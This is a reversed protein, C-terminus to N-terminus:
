GQQYSGLHLWSEGESVPDGAPFDTMTGLWFRGHPDVAGDNSRIRDGYAEGADEFKTVYEYKGTKRDAVAIGQKVGILIKEEPDVGEIDATVTVAEPFSLTQLSEPGDTLSVTHLKKNIIDVFRLKNTAKEYYPGEGLKCHLDLWPKGTEWQQFNEGSM